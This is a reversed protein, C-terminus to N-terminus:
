TEDSFLEQNMLWDPYELTKALQNYGPWVNTKRCESYIKMGKDRKRGGYALISAGAPYVAIEYPPDKECVIFTFADHRCVGTAKAGELYHAASVDYMYKQCDRWFKDERADTSTKLDIMGFKQSVFDARLKSLEETQVDNWWMTAERVGSALIRSATKHNLIKDSMILLQDIWKSKVVIAGPKLAGWWDAKMELAAKSRTSMDGKQTPAEFVPEIVHNAKFLGPELVAYHFLKGFELADSDKEKIRNFRHDYYHAPSRLVDKLGSANIGESETYVQFPINEILKNMEPPKLFTQQESSQSEM